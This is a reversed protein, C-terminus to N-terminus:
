SEEGSKGAGATAAAPGKHYGYHYYNYYSAYHPSKLNVDNLVVGAINPDAAKLSRRARILADRSTRGARVVVIVGDVVRSLVVADTVALVPPSDFIVRDYKEGLRKVLAEFKETQLLEAPNPPLPGCPMVWLNPVETTKVADEIESEGVIVRSMGNENGVGLAKHLRPRRMDTDVLLTRNGGQAMVIALNVSTTTKGEVPNSSTVVMTKLPRDPSCFLINTRVVRCCEALTSNPHDNVYLEPKKLAQVGELAPVMGLFPLGAGVEIDEQTKVSRDLFEVGFALLLGLLLGLAAGLMLATRMNPAVPAGPMVASDLLTINNSVDNVQLGSEIQRKYLDTYDNAAVEAERALTKYKVELGNLEIAEKTLRAVEAGYRGEADQFARIEADMARVMTRAEEVLDTKASEVRARQSEVAPWKPGYKEELELLKRREELYVSRLAEISTSQSIGSPANLADEDILTVVAKRRAQADMRRKKVDTLASSFADLERVLMNQQDQLAVTLINHERRFDYLATESDKLRAAADDRMKAVRGSADRTVYQKLDVNRHIYTDAVADALDKAVAPRTDSVSITMVRSDRDFRGSVRGLLYGTAASRREDESRAGIPGVLREDKHLKFRDVTAEALSRSGLIHIQTNYYDTNIWPNGSGLTVVEVGQRGLVNPAMPDVIVTTSAAYIKPKRATIVGFLVVVVCFAAVIVWWRKRVVNLYHRIDIRDEDGGSGPNLNEEDRDM